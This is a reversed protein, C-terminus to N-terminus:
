KTDRAPQPAGSASSETSHFMTNSTLASAALYTEDVEKIVENEELQLEGVVEGRERVVMRVGQALVHPSESALSSIESERKSSTASTQRQMTTPPTHIRHPTATTTSTSDSTLTDLFSETPNASIPQKAEKKKRATEKLREWREKYKNAIQTQRIKKDFNKPRSNSRQPNTNRKSAGKDAKRTIGANKSQGFDGTASASLPSRFLPAQLRSMGPHIVSSSIGPVIGAHSQMMRKAQKQYDQRFQIISSKLFTNEEGAKELSAVRRLLQEINQKLHDNEILLEENTKNKSYGSKGFGAGSTIRNGFFQSDISASSMSFSESPGRIQSKPNNSPVVFYSNLMKTTNYDLKETERQRENNRTTSVSSSQPASIKQVLNEVTEWFKNFPDDLEDDQVPVSNMMYYSGLNLDDFRNRLETRHLPDDSVFNDPNQGISYMKSGLTSNNSDNLSSRSLASPLGAISVPRQQVQPKMRSSTPSATPSRSTTSSRRLQHQQQQLQQQQLQQQLQQQQLSLRRQLDKGQRSHNAYLLKLTKIAENDSTQQQALLFFDAAKFHSDIAQSYQGRSAYEDAAQAYSNANLIPSDHSFASAM